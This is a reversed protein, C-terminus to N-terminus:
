LHHKRDFNRLCTICNSSGVMASRLHMNLLTEPERVNGPYDYDMLRSLAKASIGVIDTFTHRAELEKKLQEIQTIDQFTEVGGIM